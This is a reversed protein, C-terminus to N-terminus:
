YWRNARWFDWAACVSGYRSRIYRLGADIQGHPDATKKAGVARWTSDLFQFLGYASSTPNQADPKWGSEAFVLRDLCAWEEESLLRRAYARPPLKAQAKPNRAVRVIGWDKPQETEQTEPKAFWGGASAAILWLLLAATAIRKM